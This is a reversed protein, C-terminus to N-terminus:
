SFGRNDPRPGRNDNGRYGGGQPRNFGEQVRNRYDPRGGGRNPRSDRDGRPRRQYDSSQSPATTRDARRVITASGLNRLRKLKEAVKKLKKLDQAAKVVKCCRHRFDGKRSVEKKPSEKKPAEKQTKAEAKVELRLLKLKLSLRLLKLKLQNLKLKLKLQSLKLKKKLLQKKRLM